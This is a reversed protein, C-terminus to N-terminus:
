VRRFFPAQGTPQRETEDLRDFHKPLRPINTLLTMIHRIEQFCTKFNKEQGRRFCITAKRHSSQPHTTFQDNVLALFVNPPTAHSVSFMNSNMMTSIRFVPSVNSYRQPPKTTSPHLPNISRIYSSQKSQDIEANAHRSHLHM